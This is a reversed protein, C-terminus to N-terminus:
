GSNNERIDTGHARTSYLDLLGLNRVPLGSRAGIVLHSVFCPTGRGEKSTTFRGTVVQLRTSTHDIHMVAHIFYLPM